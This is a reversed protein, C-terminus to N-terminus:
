NKVLKFNYTAVANTVTLIYTGRAIQASIPLRCYKGPEIMLTQRHVLQGASTSLLITFPGKVQGRSKLIINDHVPNTVLTMANESGTNRVAVVQSFKHQGDIDVSRLRYYVITKIETSDNISYIERTNYNRAPVSAVTSFVIGDTSREVEFHSVTSENDTVWAVHVYDNAKEASFNILTLPIAFSRSGFTLLNFSSMATSTVAGTTTVNGTATGVGGQDTWQSGNYNAASISSLVWYPFSVKSNNWNLTAVATGGSVKSVSWYESPDITVLPSLVQTTNPTSQQYKVNFESSASFATLQITREYTANGVPFIFNTNGFKKVWGNVHRSDNDGSYSSGAEYILYNPTSSTTVLGSTFVHSNAVSLNNNLTIGASNNTNLNYTKFTQLGNVSQAATGNLYLTGNGIGAFVQDNTLNQRVYLSGNNTLSATSMNTFDGNIYLIDSSGTFYLIGTNQLNVQAKSILSVLLLFAIIQYCRTKM